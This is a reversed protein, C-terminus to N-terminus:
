IKTVAVYRLRNYKQISIDFALGFLWQGWQAWLSSSFVLLLQVHARLVVVLVESIISMIIIAELWLDIIFTCLVSYVASITLSAESSHSFFMASCHMVMRFSHAPRRPACATPWVAESAAASRGGRWTRRGVAELSARAVAACHNWIALVRWFYSRKIHNWSNKWAVKLM